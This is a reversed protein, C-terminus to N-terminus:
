VDVSVTLICVEAANPTSHFYLRRITSAAVHEIERLYREWATVARPMVAAPEEVDIQDVLEFPCGHRSAADGILWAQM